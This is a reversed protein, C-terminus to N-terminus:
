DNWQLGLWFGDDLDCQSPPVQAEGEQRAGQCNVTVKAAKRGELGVQYKHWLKYLNKLNSSLSVPAASVEATAVLLQAANVTRDDDNGLQQRTTTGM